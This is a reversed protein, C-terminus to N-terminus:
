NDTLSSKLRNFEEKSIEGTQFRRRHVEVVANRIELRHKGRMALYWILLFVGALLIWLVPAWHTNLANLWDM